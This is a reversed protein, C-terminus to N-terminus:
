RGAGALSRWVSGLKILLISHFRVSVGLALHATPSGRSGGKTASICGLARGHVEFSLRPFERWGLCHRLSIAQVGDMPSVLELFGLQSFLQIALKLLLHTLFRSDILLAPRHNLISLFGDLVPLFRWIIKHPLAGLFSIETSSEDSLM